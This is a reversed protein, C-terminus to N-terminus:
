RRGVPERDDGGAAARDAPRAARACARERLWRVCAAVDLALDEHITDTDDGLNRSLAGLCGFGRALLAPFLYHHTFDMRPHMAIVATRPRHDGHAPTWYLARVERLDATPLVRSDVRADQPPERFRFPMGDLYTSSIWM